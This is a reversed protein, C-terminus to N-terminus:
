SIVVVTKGQGEWEAIEEASAGKCYIYGSGELVIHSASTWSLEAFSTLNTLPNGGFTCFLGPNHFGIGDCTSRGHGVQAAVFDAIDSKESQKNLHLIVINTCVAFDMLSGVCSSSNVTIEMLSPKAMSSLHGSIKTQNSGRLRQFDDVYALEDINFAFITQEYTSPTMNLYRFSYTDDYRGTIFINYDDNKFYLYLVDSQSEPLTYSTLRSAPDDLGAYTLAFYGNGNVTITQGKAYIILTQATQSPATTKLCSVKVTGYPQLNVNDVSGKLKTILCNGM